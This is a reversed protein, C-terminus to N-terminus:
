PSSGQFATWTVVGGGLFEVTARQHYALEGDPKAPPSWTTINCQLVYNGAQAATPLIALLLAFFPTTLAIKSMPQDAKL